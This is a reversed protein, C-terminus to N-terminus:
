CSKQNNKKDFCARNRCKWLAWCIAAFGFTYVLDGGPLSEKIWEKYQQINQPITTANLCQGVIDWVVKAVPCLFFLHNTTEIDSCFYCSPDGAWKRRILNEKTLVANNELLWIFIKIKYPLKAKWIHKHGQGNEASTLHEYASKSSFRGSKNWRWVVTDKNNEFPFAYVRNLVHLWQEFILPPRWRNFDIQGGKELVSHVTINKDKCLDFLVPFTVCLAEKDLWKELWFACTKGNKVKIERGRLYIHKVKILDHWVPSDDLRHKM